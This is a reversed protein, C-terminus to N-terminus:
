SAEADPSKEPLFDEAELGGARVAPLLTPPGSQSERRLHRLHKRFAAAARRELLRRSLPGALRKARILAQVPGPVRLLKRDLLHDILDGFLSNWVMLNMGDGRLFADRHAIILHHELNKLAPHKYSAGLKKFGIREYLPLL